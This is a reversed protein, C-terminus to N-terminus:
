RLKNENRPKFEKPKIEDIHRNVKIKKVGKVAEGWAKDETM